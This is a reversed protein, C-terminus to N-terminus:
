DWETRSMTYWDQTEFIDGWDVFTQNVYTLTDNNSTAGYNNAQGLSWSFLDVWGDYNPNGMELNANGCWDFQNPAFRWLSDKTHFQLNGPSFTVQQTASISFRGSLTTAFMNAAFFVIAFSLIARKM